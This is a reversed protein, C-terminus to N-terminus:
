DDSVGWKNLVDTIDNDNDSTSSNKVVKPEAVDDTKQDFVKADIQEDVGDKSDYGSTKDFGFRGAGESGEVLAIVQVARIKLSVGAGHLPSAYPYLGANVKIESGGWIPPDVLVNNQADFIAPKYAAKSKFKFILNGTPAGNDDLQESYPPNATKIDKKKQKKMEAKLNEEFVENITKLLPKADEKSLVLNVKYEGDENFKTDPKTLWPYLAVGTETTITQKEM